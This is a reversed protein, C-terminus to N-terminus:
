LSETVTYSRCPAQKGKGTTKIVTWSLDEKSIQALLIRFVISEPTSYLGSHCSSFPGHQMWQWRTVFLVFMCLFILFSTICWKFLQLTWRQVKHCNKTWTVSINAMLCSLLIRSYVGINFQLSKQIDCWSFRDHKNLKNPWDVTEEEFVLHFSHDNSTLTDTFFLLVDHYWVRELILILLRVLIM